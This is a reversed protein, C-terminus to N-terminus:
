PCFTVSLADSTNFGAGGGAVNRYVVQFRWTETPLVNGGGPMSGLNPTWRVAGSADTVFTSSLVYPSAICRTGNGFPATTANRGILYRAPVLSPAGSCVLELDNAERSTSGLASMAAVVGTSSPTSTCYTAPAPCGTGALDLAARARVLGHGFTTDYGAAGLDRATTRLLTDVQAASLDGNRALILAAIGACYPAAMSTGSALTYDGPDIGPMNSRDTTWISVGPGSLDLGTGTNSWSPHGGVANVAAVGNVVALRAPYHITTLSGNGASGFHVVGSAHLSTYATTVSPQEQLGNSCNTVRCGLTTVQGLAALVWTTSTTWSSDCAPSSILTRIPVITALPATGGAGLGNDIRAAAAGAVFTGHNDCSTVASGDGPGASTTDAGSAVNLDPHARDVGVDLIAIRVAPNGTTLDWAEVADVDMDPTGGFPAQGTNNLGWCQAFLPDNPVHDFTGTYVLDVDAFRVGPAAELERARALVDFGNRAAVRVRTLEDFGAFSAESEEAAILARAGDDVFSVFLDRAVVVTRGEEGVFVPSVFQMRSDRALERVLTEVDAATRAGAPLPVVFWGAAPSATRARPDIGRADLAENWGAVDGRADFIAIRAPDLPLDLVSPMETSAPVFSFAVFALPHTM